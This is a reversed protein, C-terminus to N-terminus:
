AESFRSPSGLGTLPRTSVEQRLVRRRVANPEGNKIFIPKQRIANEQTAAEAAKQV